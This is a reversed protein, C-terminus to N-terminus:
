SLLNLVEVMENEVENPKIEKIIRDISCSVGYEKRMWNNLKKIFKKGPVLSLKEELTRWKAEIVKRAQRNCASVDLGANAEKLHQSIQDIIDDKEENVLM